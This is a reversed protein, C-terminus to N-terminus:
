NTYECLKNQRKLITHRYSNFYLGFSQCKIIKVLEFDYHVSLFCCWCRFYIFVFFLLLQKDMCKFSLFIILRNLLDKHTLTHTQIQALKHLVTCTHPWLTARPTPEPREGRKLYCRKKEAADALNVTRCTRPNEQRQSRNGRPLGPIVSAWEM